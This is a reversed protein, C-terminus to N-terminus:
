PHVDKRGPWPLAVRSLTVLDVKAYLSTTDLSQHGLLDAIQKLTAGAGLMQSALSQRLVHTGGVRSRLGARSALRLVVQCIGIATLPKGLPAYHRMFLATSACSPRDNRIYAKLATGLRQTLPLAAAEREKRRRLRLVKAIFDVGDLELGAVDSARLGLESMCLLIAHDRRGLSTQVDSAKILRNVEEKRLAAPLSALRWRAVQPVAATLDRRILGAQLLFRLFSRTCGTVVRGKSPTRRSEQSVYQEIVEPTWGAFQSGRRIGLRSLMLLTYTLHIRITPEVLGRVTALHEQYRRLLNGSYGQPLPVRAEEHGLMKLLRRLAARNFRRDRIVRPCRCTPLHHDLFQRVRPWNVQRRGLWRGFYEVACGYAHATRSSYGCSTLHERYRELLLRIPKACTRRCVHKDQSKLM